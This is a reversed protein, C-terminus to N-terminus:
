NERLQVSTLFSDNLDPIIHPPYLHDLSCNLAPGGFFYSINPM